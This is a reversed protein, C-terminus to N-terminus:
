YFKVEYSGMGLVCVLRMSKKTKKKLCTDSLNDLFDESKSNLEGVAIKIKDCLKQFCSRNM